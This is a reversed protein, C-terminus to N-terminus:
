FFSRLGQRLSIHHMPANVSSYRCRIYLKSSSYARGSDRAPTSKNENDFTVTPFSASAYPHKRLGMIGNTKRNM